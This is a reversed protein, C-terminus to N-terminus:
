GERVVEGMVWAEVEREALFEAARDAEAAPLIVVMGVGLNTAGALEEDEVPGLHALVQFIPPV